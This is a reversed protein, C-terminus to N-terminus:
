RGSHASLWLLAPTLERNWVSFHHGGTPLTISAVRMPAHVLAVFQLTQRYDKEGVKSTTVLVDVPPAPLHRLRWVLDNENRYTRSGGYLDGTTFDKLANYYGSLSIAAGFRDSHRMALKLACYGGTSDGLASWAGPGPATRYATSIAAPLDQAFFTEALPGAPVDTCETDRPPTLMPRMMVFIMPKIRGARIELAATQPLRLRTILNEANGPYGTLALDVPFRTTHDHFYQPPLYVYARATIGSRQGHITVAELRGEGVPLQHQQVFSDQVPVLPRGDQNRALAGGTSRLAPDGTDGAGASVGFLDSWSGYFAFYANGMTLLALLLCVQCAALLGIRAAPGSARPAFWIAAILASLAVASLLVILPTGTLSM